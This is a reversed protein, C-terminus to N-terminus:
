LYDEKEIEHTKDKNLTFVNTISYNLKIDIHLAMVKLTLSIHYLKRHQFDNCVDHQLCLACDDHNFLVTSDLMIQLNISAADYECKCSTRTETRTGERRRGRTLSPSSSSPHPCTWPSRGGCRYLHTLPKLSIECHNKYNPSLSQQSAFNRQNCYM